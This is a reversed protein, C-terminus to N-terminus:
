WGDVNVALVAGDHTEVFVRGAKVDVVTVVSVGWNGVVRKERSYCVLFATKGLALDFM